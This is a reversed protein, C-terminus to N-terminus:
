EEDGENLQDIDYGEIDEANVATSEPYEVVYNFEQENKKAEEDSKSRLERFMETSMKAFELFKKDGDWGYKSLETARFFTQNALVRLATDPDLNPIEGHVHEMYMSRMDNPVPPALFQKEDNKQKWIAIDYNSCIKTDFFWHGYNIIIESDFEVGFKQNIVKAIIKHPCRELLMEEVIERMPPTRYIDEAESMLDRFSPNKGTESCHAKYAAVENPLRDPNCYKYLYRWNPIKPPNM